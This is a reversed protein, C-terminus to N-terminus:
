LRRSSRQVLKNREHFERLLKREEEEQNGGLERVKEKTYSIKRRNEQRKIFYICDQFREMYSGREGEMTIDALVQAEEGGALFPILDKERVEGKELYLEYA